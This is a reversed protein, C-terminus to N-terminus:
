YLKWSFITAQAMGTTDGSVRFSDSALLYGFGDNTQFQYRIPQIWTTFGTTTGGIEVDFHYFVRTDSWNLIGSQVTGISFQFEIKDGISLLDISNMVLDVYLLEMVTAKNGITKLRPIPTFVQNTTFANGGSLTLEGSLFNPFDDKTRARRSM